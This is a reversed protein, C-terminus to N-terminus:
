PILSLLTLQLGQKEYVKFDRDLTVMTLDAAIAFAALYADMWVKPSASDRTAMQYWLPLLGPLEDRFAVTPRAMIQELMRIADRNTLGTANSLRLFAPTSVLRLFSQQTSRCFVASRNKSTAHFASLALSHHPHAVFALAVWVNVDFLFASEPL